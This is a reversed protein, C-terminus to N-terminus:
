HSGFFIVRCASLQIFFFARIEVKDESVRSLIGIKSAGKANFSLERKRSIAQRPNTISFGFFSEIFIREMERAHIFTNRPLLM